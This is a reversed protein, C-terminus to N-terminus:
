GRGEKAMAGTGGTWQLWLFYEQNGKAGPVPSPARGCVRYDAAAAAEAVQDVARAQLAPDRVIGGRGVQARGVEFQPKVLLVLDAAPALFPALLPIVLRLSIFSLDAVLLDVPEGIASPKLTRINTREFLTV